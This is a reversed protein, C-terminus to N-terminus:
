VKVTWGFVDKEKGTKLDELYTAIRTSIKWNSQPLLSYDKGKVNIKDIHAINAATGCGFAEHLKGANGAAEIEDVSIEREEFPINWHKAIKLISDRTIGALKSEGLSPTLLTGDIVFMLNMSGSEEVYKHEKSDTWIVQNYGKEHAIRTPLMAAGYNGAAKAFGVGGECARSYRTEVMVKVPEPYYAGVPSTFIVLRYDESPKVGIAEDIGFFVPRIYLSQGAGSPVWARDLDILKKLGEIFIEEPVEPMCMRTASINLRKHNDYPRFLLITESDSRYGKMGEFISQGHHLASISPSMELKQFPLIEPTNWKGDTFDAVLMHDSFHKGFVLNDYDIQSRRSESIKKIEFKM